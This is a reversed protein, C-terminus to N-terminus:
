TASSRRRGISGAAIGTSDIQGDGIANAAIASPDIQVNDM